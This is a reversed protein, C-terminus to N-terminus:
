FPVYGSIFSEDCFGSKQAWRMRLESKKVGSSPKVYQLFWSGYKNEYKSAFLPIWIVKKLAVWGGTLEKTEKNPSQNVTPLFMNPKMVGRIANQHYQQRAVYYLQINAKSIRSGRTINKLSGLLNM